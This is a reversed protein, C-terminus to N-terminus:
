ATGAPRAVMFLEDPVAVLFGFFSPPMAVHIPLDGMILVLSKFDDIEDHPVRFISLDVNANCSGWYVPKESTSKAVVIALLVGVFTRVTKEPLLHGNDICVIALLDASEFCCDKLGQLVVGVLLVFHGINACASFLASMAWHICVNQMIAQLFNILELQVIVPAGKSTAVIEEVIWNPSPSKGDCAGWSKELGNLNAHHTCARAGAQASKNKDTQLLM